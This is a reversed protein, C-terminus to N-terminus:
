RRLIGNDTIVCDYINKGEFFRNSLVKEMEEKYKKLKVIHKELQQTSGEFNVLRNIQIGYQQIVFLVYLFNSRNEENSAYSYVKRGQFWFDFHFDVRNHIAEEDVWLHRFNFGRKSTSFLSLFTDMDHYLTHNLVGGMVYFGGKEMEIKTMTKIIHRKSSMPNNTPLKDFTKKALAVIEEKMGHGSPILIIHTQYWGM